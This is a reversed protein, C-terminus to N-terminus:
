LFLNGKCFLFSCPVGGDGSPPRRRCDRVVAWEVVLRVSTFIRVHDDLIWASCQELLGNRLLRAPRVSRSVWVTMAGLVGNGWEGSAGFLSFANV